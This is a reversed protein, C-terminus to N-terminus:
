EPVNEGRVINFVKPSEGGVGDPRGLQRVGYITHAATSALHKSFAGTYLFRITRGDSVILEMSTAASKDVVEERVPPDKAESVFVPQYSEGAVRIDDIKQIDLRHKIASGAAAPVLLLEQGRVLLNVDTGHNIDGDLSELDALLTGGNLYYDAEHDRAIKREREPDPLPKALLAFINLFLGGWFLIVSNLAVGAILSLITFIGIGLRIRNWSEGRRLQRIKPILLILWFFTFLFVGLWKPVGFPRLRDKPPTENAENGTRPAAQPSAGSM